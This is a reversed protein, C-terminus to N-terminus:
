LSTPRSWGKPMRWPPCSITTPQVSSNMTLQSTFPFWVPTGQANKVGRWCSLCQCRSCFWRRGPRLWLVRVWSPACLSRPAGATSGWRPLFSHCPGNKDVAKGTQKSLFIPQVASRSFWNVTFSADAGWGSSTRAVYSIVCNGLIWKGMCLILVVNFVKSGTMLALFPSLGACQLIRYNSGTEWTLSM